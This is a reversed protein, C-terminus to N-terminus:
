RVTLLRKKEEFILEDYKEKPKVIVHCKRCRPEYVESAAVLVIPDDWKAPKGNILRQTRSAPSGCCVCIAQLKDVYEAIALLQPMIGFPEGRFDLDLGTVIVRKGDSSLERCAEVMDEEFFQIEDIAVVNTDKELLDYLQEKANEIELSHAAIKNGNHDNVCLKDYRDDIKPKFVQVKQKAISARKIRRILEESKGCFMSGCIVEIWGLYPPTDRRNMRM